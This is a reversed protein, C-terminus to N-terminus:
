ELEGFSEPVADIECSEGQLREVLEPAEVLDETLDESGWDCKSRSELWDNSFPNLVALAGVNWTFVRSSGGGYLGWRLRRSWVLSWSAHSKMNLFRNSAGCIVKTRGIYSMREHALAGARASIM